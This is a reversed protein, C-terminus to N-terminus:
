TANHDGVGRTLPVAGRLCDGRQRGGASSTAPVSRRSPSVRTSWERLRETAVGSVAPRGFRVLPDIVVPSVTGLPRVKAADRGRPDFEIKGFFRNAEDDLMIEQGSRVVIAITSRLDNREQIELV